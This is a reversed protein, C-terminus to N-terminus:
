SKEYEVDGTWKNQIRVAGGADIIIRHGRTLALISGDEFRATFDPLPGYMRGDSESPGPPPSKKAVGSWEDEVQDLTECIQLLAAEACKVQPLAHLRRYLEKLRDGISRASAPDSM